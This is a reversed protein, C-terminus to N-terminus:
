VVDPPYHFHSFPHSCPQSFRNVIGLYKVQKSEDMKNIFFDTAALYDYVLEKVLYSDTSKVGLHYYTKMKLQVQLDDNIFHAKYYDQVFQEVGAIDLNLYHLENCIVGVAADHITTYVFGVSPIAALGTAGLGSLKIFRRRKM